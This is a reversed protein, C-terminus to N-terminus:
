VEELGNYRLRVDVARNGDIKYDDGLKPLALYGNYRAYTDDARKLTEITMGASDMLTGSTTLYTDFIYYLASLPLSAFEWMAALAGDGREYGDLTLRRVPYPEVPQSNPHLQLPKTYAFLDEEVLTLSGTPQNLGAAWKFASRPPFSM